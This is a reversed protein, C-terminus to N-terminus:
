VEAPLREEDVKAIAPKRRRFYDKPWHHAMDVGNPKVKGKGNDEIKKEDKGVMVPKSAAKTRKSTEMEDEEETESENESESGDDYDRKQRRKGKRRWGTFLAIFKDWSGIVGGLSSALILTSILFAVTMGAFVQASWNHNTVIDM